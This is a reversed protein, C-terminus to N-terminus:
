AAGGQASRAADVQADLHGPGHEEDGIFVQVSGDDRDHATRLWQWRAADEQAQAPAARAEKLARVAGTMREGRVKSFTAHDDAICFNWGSLMGAAYASDQLAATRLDEQGQGALQTAHEQAPAAALQDIRAILAGGHDAEVARGKYSPASDGPVAGANRADNYGLDYAGRIADFIIRKQLDGTPAPPAAQLAAQAEMAVAEYHKAALQKEMEAIRASAREFLDAARAMSAPAAGHELKMVMVTSHLSNAYDTCEQALAEPQTTNTMTKDVKIQYPYNPQDTASETMTM